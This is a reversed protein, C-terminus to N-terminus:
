NATFTMVGRGVVKSVCPEAVSAADGTVKVTSFGDYGAVMLSGFRGSSALRQEKYVPKRAPSGGFQQARRTQSTISTGIRLCFV